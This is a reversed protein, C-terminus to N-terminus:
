AARTRVATGTVEAEARVWDDLDHGHERGRDEYLEYAYRRIEEELNPHANTPIDRSQTRIPEKPM